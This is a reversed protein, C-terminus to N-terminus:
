GLVGQLDVTLVYLAFTTLYTLGFQLLGQIRSLAAHKRNAELLGAGILHVTRDDAV